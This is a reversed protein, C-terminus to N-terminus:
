SLSVRLSVRQRFSLHGSVPTLAIVCTRQYSYVPYLMYALLSAGGQTAPFHLPEALQMFIRPTGSVGADGPLGAVRGENPHYLPYALPKADWGKPHNARISNRGNDSIGM